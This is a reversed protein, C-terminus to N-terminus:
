AQVIGTDWVDTWVLFTSRGDLHLWRDECCSVDIEFTGSAHAIRNFGCCKASDSAGIAAVTLVSEQLFRANYRMRLELERDLGAPHV